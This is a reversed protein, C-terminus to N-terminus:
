HKLWKPLMTDPDDARKQVASVIKYRWKGARHKKEAAKSSLNLAKAVTARAVAISELTPPPRSPNAGVAKPLDHLDTCNAIASLLAKRIPLMADVLAPWRSLVAAPNRMGANCAADEADRVEKRSQADVGRTADRTIRRPPGWGVEDSFLDNIM